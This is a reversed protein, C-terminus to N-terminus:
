LGPEIVKKLAQFLDQVQEETHQACVTMRLRSTGRPVTPPRVAGVWFGRDQLLKAGELARQEGKLILPVIPGEALGMVPWNEALASRLQRSRQRLQEQWKPERGIIEIAKEVAAAVAPPINTSYIFARGWNVVGQCFAASGCVAGGVCGLAKSLTVVMVDALGGLGLEAAYGSGGPGYVGSAHAEDLLLFFPYRQKLEALGRLDAADGDMSFISETVVV